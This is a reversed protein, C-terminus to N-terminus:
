IGHVMRRTCRTLQGDRAPRIVVHQEREGLAVDGNGQPVLRSVLACWTHKAPWGVHTVLGIRGALSVVDPVLWEHMCLM